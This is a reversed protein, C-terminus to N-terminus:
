LMAQADRASIFEIPPRMKKSALTRVGWLFVKMAKPDKGDLIDWFTKLEDDATVRFIRQSWRVRGDVQGPFDAVMFHLQQIVRLALPEDNQPMILVTGHNGARYQSAFEGFTEADTLQLISNPEDGHRDGGSILALNQREALEMTTRNEKYSRLGNLELAHLFPRYQEIFQNMLRNHIERGTLPQDWIPHNFVVLADPIRDLEALLEGLKKPSPNATFRKMESMWESASKPPLNHVGLHFYTEHYPTTWEVSIPAVSSDHVNQLRLNAEITDHDTLSVLAPAEVQETIQAREIEFAQPGSLPSTWWMRRMQEELGPVVANSGHHARHHRTLQDTIFRRFTPYKAALRSVFTMSEKSHMTHGHLSVCTRFRECERRDRKFHLHKRKM